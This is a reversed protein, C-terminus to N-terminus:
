IRKRYISRRGTRALLASFSELNSYSATTSRRLSSPHLTPLVPSIVAAIAFRRDEEDIASDLKAWLYLETPYIACLASLSRKEVDEIQYKRSLRILASIVHFETKLNYTDKLVILRTLIDM